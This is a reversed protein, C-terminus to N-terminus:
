AADRPVTALHILFPVGTRSHFVQVVLKRGHMGADNAISKLEDSRSLLRLAETMM